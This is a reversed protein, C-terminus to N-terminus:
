QDRAKFATFPDLDLSQALKFCVDSINVFVRAQGDVRKGVMLAAAHLAEEEDGRLYGKDADSFYKYSGIDTWGKSDPTAVLWTRGEAFCMGMPRYKSHDRDENPNGFSAPGGGTHSFAWAVTYAAGVSFGAPLLTEAIAMQLAGDLGMALGKGRGSGNPAILGDPDGPSSGAIEKNRYRIRVASAKAGIADCVQTLPYPREDPM